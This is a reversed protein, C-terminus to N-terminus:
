LDSIVAFLLHEFVYPACSRSSGSFGEWSEFTRPPIGYAASFAVQSLGTLSRIDRVTHCDYIAHLVTITRAMDNEDEIAASGVEAAFRDFDPIDEADLRLAHFTQYTM